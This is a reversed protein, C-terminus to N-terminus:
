SELLAFYSKMLRHLFENDANYRINDVRNIPLILPSTGTIFAIDYENLRNCDIREEVIRVHLSKCLDFVRKRSTGPLVYQLPSTYLTEGKIFFVNSRSGETIFGEKDVLLVEYVHNEQILRNTQTRLDANIYKVEPNKRMARLTMTSVGERYQAETPYSHPIRFIYEDPHQSTFHLVYKINGETMNELSIFHRLKEPINLSGVNIDINSKILSNALRVLNDKLFIPHGEFVRIVEYISLGNEILKESFANNEDPQNNILVM